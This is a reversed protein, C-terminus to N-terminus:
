FVSPLNSQPHQFAPAITPDAPIAPPNSKELFTTLPRQPLHRASHHAMTRPFSAAITRWPARPPHPKPLHTQNKSKKSNPFFAKSCNSAFPAPRAPRQRAARIRRAKRQTSSSTQVYHRRYRTSIRAVSASFLPTQLPFPSSNMIKTQLPLHPVPASICLKPALSGMQAFIALANHAARRM